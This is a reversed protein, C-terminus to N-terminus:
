KSHQRKHRCGLLSRIHLLKDAATDLLILEDADLLGDAAEVKEWFVNSIEVHNKAETLNKVLIELQNRISLRDIKEDLAQLDM